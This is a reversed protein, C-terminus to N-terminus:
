IGDHRKSDYIKTGVCIESDYTKMEDHREGDYIKTRDCREGNKGTLIVWCGLCMKVCKAQPTLNDKEGGLLLM